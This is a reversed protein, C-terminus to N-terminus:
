GPELYLHRQPRSHALEQQRQGVAHLRPLFLIKKRVIMCGDTCSHEAKDVVCVPLEHAQVGVLELWSVVNLKDASKM